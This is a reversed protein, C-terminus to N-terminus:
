LKRKKSVSLIKTNQNESNVNRIHPLFQSYSTFTMINDTNQLLDATPLM